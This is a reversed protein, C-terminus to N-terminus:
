KEPVGLAERSTPRTFPQRLFREAMGNYLDPMQVPFFHTGGPVIGLQAKPINRYIELLHEARIADDDAGLIMTPAQIRRLDELPIHPENLMLENQRKIRPWNQWRDGKAIMANADELVRTTEPLFWDPFATADPRLNPGSAVLKKVKSPHRIALLLGLIAGDSHGLVDAPGSRADDLVAALDDAMREYALPGSGDDSKGHARSDAAIVRYSRSFHPISCRWGSIDGGNGHIMLLPPGSGYVEYYIRVGDVVVTHGAQKNNGFTVRQPCPFPAQASATAAGALAVVVAVVRALRSVRM